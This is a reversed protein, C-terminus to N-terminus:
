PLHVWVQDTSMNYEFIWQIAQKRAEVRRNHLFIDGDKYNNHMNMRYKDESVLLVPPFQRKGFPYGWENLSSWYCNNHQRVIKFELCHKDYYAYEDDSRSTNLLDNMIDKNLQNKHVFDRSAYFLMVDQLVVQDYGYFLTYERHHLSAKIRDFFQQTRPSMLLQSYFPHKTNNWNSVVDYPSSEQVHKHKDHYNNHNNNIFMIGSNLTYKLDQAIFTVENYFTNHDMSYLNQIESLMSQLTRNYMTQPPIAVDIDLYLLWKPSYRILAYELCYIGFTKVLVANAKGWHYGNENLFRLAHMKDFIDFKYCYNNKKAFDRVTIVWPHSWKFMDRIAWDDGIACQYILYECNHIPNEDSAHAQPAEYVGTNDTTITAQEHPSLSLTGYMEMLTVCAVFGIILITTFYFRNAM